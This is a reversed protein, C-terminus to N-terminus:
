KKTDNKLREKKYQNNKYEITELTGIIGFYAIILFGISYIIFLFTIINMIKNNVIFAWINCNIIKKSKYAKLNTGYFGM